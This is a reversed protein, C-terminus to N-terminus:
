KKKSSSKKVVHAKTTVAAQPVPKFFEIQSSLSSGTGAGGVVVLEHNWSAVAVNSLPTPLTGANEIMATAPDYEYIASSPQGSADTGGVLYIHGDVVAAAAGEIPSNLEGVIMAQGTHVNIAQITTTPTSGVQGGFVYLTGEYLVSAGYRVPQPLTGISSFTTGNTTSLVTPNATLGDYGGLVYNTGLGQAVALDSRPQPLAGVVSSSGVGLSQITGTTSSQGGGYVYIKGGLVGAGADHTPQALSMGASVSAKGKKMTVDYTSNTSNGSADLGGIVVLHGNSVVASARQLAVPLSAHAARVLPQTATPMPAPVVTNAMSAISQNAAPQGITSAHTIGLSYPPVLDIGDPNSLQGPASGAVGTGYQWVIQNTKPDIVVVRNDKDDNLIVDGNPLPLALSPQNLMGPGSQPSYRWLVQGTATFEEVTGPKSYDATLFVGPRVENTDSPYLIGPAHFSQYITGNIGMEDIWDGNIETVVYHGNTMPFAGNPSGFRQPPNHYCANTSLGYVHVPSLDGPKLLLIRCNKIDANIIYGDPLMMADDPNWLHNPGMGEQGPVGYRYVIKHQAISIVSIVFNDEETAIIYKGDPTFFADDPILFTQGPALDGPQPFQWLIQGKPNVILLRNNSRDAILIPGPLVSPNSGPQLHASDLPTSFQPPIGPVTTATTVVKAKPVTKKKAPSSSSSAFASAASIGVIVVVATMIAIFKSSRVRM